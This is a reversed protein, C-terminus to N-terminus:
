KILYVIETGSAFKKEFRTDTSLFFNVAPNGKKDLLVYRADFENVLVGYTDELMDRTCEMAGCTKKTVLDAALYHYKWYLSPNYEYQFIPDLGGIYYNKQNWYFLPSFDSWHLNFVIDGPQSNERLWLAAERLEDPRYGGKEIANIAKQGSYFVLFIFVFVLATSGLNKFLQRAKQSFKPIIYSFSAAASAIAFLAWFSYARRAVMMTVLFFLVSIVAASFAFIKQRADEPLTKKFIAWFAIAIGAAWILLLPSFNKFLINLSLPFNEQGFLLPLGGQKELIQKFIQVYLLKAAGLPNPRLIWGAIIGGAVALMSQWAIKREFIFKFAAVSFLILIPLWAFNLHLWSIGFSIFFQPLIGGTILFSFLVPALTLSLTQPRVMMIQTLVNPASFFLLFPWFFAGKIQHRKLVLWFAALAATTLLVGATKIGFHLNGFFTFPILFISFGYWLSASYLRIVSHVIWPFDSNLIGETKYIWAQRIYYFSDLDPINPSFLHFIASLALFALIPLIWSYKKDM